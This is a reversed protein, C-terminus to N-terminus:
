KRGSLRTARKEHEWTVHLEREKFSGSSHYSVPSFKETETPVYILCFFILFFKEYNLDVIYSCLVIIIIFFDRKSVSSEQSTLVLFFPFIWPFALVYNM